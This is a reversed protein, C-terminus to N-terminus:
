SVKGLFFFDKLFFYVCFLHFNNKEDSTANVVDPFRQHAHNSLSWNCSVGTIATRRRELSFRMKAGFSFKSIRIEFSESVQSANKRISFEPSM